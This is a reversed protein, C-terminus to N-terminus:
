WIQLLSNGVRDEDSVDADSVVEVLKSYAEECALTVDILNILRFHTLSHTLSLCQWYRVRTRYCFKTYKKLLFPVSKFWICDNAEEKVLLNCNWWGHREACQRHENVLVWIMDKYQWYWGIGYRGVQMSNQKAKFWVIKVAKQIFQQIYAMCPVDPYNKSGSWM